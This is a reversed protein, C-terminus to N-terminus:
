PPRLDRWRFDEVYGDELEVRFLLSDREDGTARDADDELVAVVTGQVGHYREHDPDTEDPIDVRVRDDESFRQM